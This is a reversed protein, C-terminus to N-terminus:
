VNVRWAKHCDSEVVPHDSRDALSSAMRTQLRARRRCGGQHSSFAMGAQQAWPPDHTKTRSHAAGQDQPGGRHVPRGQHHIGRRAAAALGSVWRHVPPPLEGLACPVPRDGALLELAKYSRRPHRFDSAFSADLLAVALAFVFVAPTYRAAFRDVFRQFDSAGPAPSEGRGHHDACRAKSPPRRALAPDRPRREPQITGAFFRM